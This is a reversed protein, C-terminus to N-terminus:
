GKERLLYVQLGARFGFGSYAYGTDIYSNTWSFIGEIGVQKTIFYTVGANYRLMNGYSQNVYPRGTYDDIQKENKIGYAYDFQPFVALKENLPFYYRLTPGVQLSASAEEGYNYSDSSFSYPIVLGAAFRDLFFYSIGPNISGEYHNPRQNFSINGGILFNRKETQAVALLSSLFIVVAFVGNKIM